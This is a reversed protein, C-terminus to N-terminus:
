LFSFGSSWNTGQSGRLRGCRGDTRPTPPQAPSPPVAVLQGPCAQADQASSASTASTLISTWGLPVSMGLSLGSLRPCQLILGGAGQSGPGVGDQFSQKQGDM